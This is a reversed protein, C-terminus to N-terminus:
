HTHSNSSAVIVRAATIDWSRLWQRNAPSPGAEVSLGGCYFTSHVVSDVWRILGDGGRYLCTNFDQSVSGVPSDPDRLGFVHATEHNIVHRTGGDDPEIEDAELTVHQHRFHCHEGGPVDYCTKTGPWHQTLSNGNVGGDKVIYQIYTEGSFFAACIDVSGFSVLNVKNRGDVNDWNVSTNNDILVGKLIDRIEGSTLLTTDDQWCYPEDLNTTHMSSIHRQDGLGHCAVALVALASLALLVLM